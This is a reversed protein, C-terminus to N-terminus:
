PSRLRWLSWLKCLGGSAESAAAAAQGDAGSANVGWDNVYMDYITVFLTTAHAKELSEECRAIFRLVQLLEQYQPQTLFRCHCWESHLRDLAAVAKTISRM